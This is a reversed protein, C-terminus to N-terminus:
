PEVPRWLNTLRRGWTPDALASQCTGLHEIAHVFVGPWVCVGLHHTTNHLRFGLLDGPRVTSVDACAYRQFNPLGELFAVALSNDNFRAHSMAVDPAQVDWFGAGRYLEAVLKQCSVGGKPGPTSSNPFFPTGAWRVAEACLAVLREPHEDQFYPKM